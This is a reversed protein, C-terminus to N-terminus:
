VLSIICLKYWGRVCPSGPQHFIHGSLATSALNVTPDHPIHVGAEGVSVWEVPESGTYRSFFYQSTFDDAHFWRQIIGIM